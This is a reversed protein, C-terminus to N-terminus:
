NSADCDIIWPAHDLPLALVPVSLLAQKLTEFAEQCEPSWVFLQNKRTLITLPRAIESFEKIFKKYYTALDVFGRSETLCTHTTWDRIKQVKEKDPALGYENVKFGLFRIETKM